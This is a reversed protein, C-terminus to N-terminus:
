ISCHFFEHIAEYYPSNYRVVTLVLHPLSFIRSHIRHTHVITANLRVNQKAFLLQM